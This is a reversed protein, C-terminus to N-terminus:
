GLAFPILHTIVTFLLGRRGQKGEGVDETSCLGLFFFDSKNEFDWVSNSHTIFVVNEFFIETNHLISLM